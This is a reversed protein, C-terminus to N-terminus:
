IQFKTFNIRDLIIKLIYITIIIYILSSHTNICICVNYCIQNENWIANSQLNMLLEFELFELFLVKEFYKEGEMKFTNNQWFTWKCCVITLVGFFGMYSVFIILHKLCKVFMSWIIHFQMHFPMSFIEINKNKLYM